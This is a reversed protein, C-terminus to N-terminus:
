ELTEIAPILEAMTGIVADALSAVHAREASGLWGPGDNEREVPAFWVVSLGASKASEVDFRPHDGVHVAEHPEAGLKSAARKFIEPNSKYLGEAATTLLAEFFERVGLQVLAREVFPPYGASSVVAMRCGRDRLGALATLTGEMLTVRPLLDRELEEVASAVEVEQPELGVERFVKAVGDAASIEIGSRHVEERLARFLRLAREEEVRNPGQTLGREALLRWVQVPLTRIELQLWADCLILTNHFDFLVARKV